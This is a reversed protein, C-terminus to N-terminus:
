DAEDNYKNEVLRNQSSDWQYIVCNDSYFEGVRFTDNIFFLGCKTLHDSSVIHQPKSYNDNLQRFLFIAFTNDKERLITTIFDKKGDHDVDAELFYPQYGPQEKQQDKLSPNVNDSTRAIRWGSSDELLQLICKQQTPSLQPYESL